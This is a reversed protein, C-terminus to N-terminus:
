TNMVVNQPDHGKKNRTCLCIERLTKVEKEVHPKNLLSYKGIHLPFIPWYRKNKESLYATVGKDVTQYAIERSLLNDPVYKPFLHPPRTAGYIRVYTYYKKM